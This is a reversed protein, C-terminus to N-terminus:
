GVGTTVNKIIAFLILLGTLLASLYIWFIKIYANDSSSKHSKNRKKLHGLQVRGSIHILITFLTIGIILILLFRIVTSKYM